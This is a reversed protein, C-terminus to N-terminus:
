FMRGGSGDWEQPLKNGKSMNCRPCSVCMNDPWNTGGRTLPIIHDDHRGKWPTPKHCWHCKGKQAKYIRQMDQITHTGPVAKKRARYNQLDVQRRAREEPDNRVTEWRTHFYSRMHDQVDPRSQYAKDIDHRHERYGPYSRSDQVHKRIREGVEPRAYYAKDSASRCGKCQNRLTNGKARHFFELTAPFPKLCDRCQKQTADDM